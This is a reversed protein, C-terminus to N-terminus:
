TIEARPITMEGRRKVTAIGFNARNKPEVTTDLNNSDGCIGWKITPHSNSICYGGVTYKNEEIPGDLLGYIIEQLSGLFQVKPMRKDHQQLIALYSSKAKSESFFRTHGAEIIARYVLNVPTSM